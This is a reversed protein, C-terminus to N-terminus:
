KAGDKKIPKAFQKAVFVRAPRGLRTMRIEGTYRITGAFLLQQIIGCVTQIPAIRDRDLDDRITGKPGCDEVYRVVNRFRRGDVWLDMQRLQAIM